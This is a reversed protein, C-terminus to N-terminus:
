PQPGTPRRGPQGFGNSVRQFSSAADADGLPSCPEALLALPDSIGFIFTTPTGGWPDFANQGLSYVEAGVAALAGLAAIENPAAGYFLRFAHSEGPLLQGFCLDFLAGHDFAGADIFGAGVPPGVFGLHSPGSLPSPFAFGDNSSWTLTPPVLTLADITVYEFFPTPSVDWDLVRRYRVDEHAFFGVNTVTVDIEYLFPTLPSPIFEHTVVLDTAQVSSSAAAGLPVFAIPTLGFSGGYAENAWGDVFGDYSVGWGECWCGVALAENGTLTDLLGVTVGLVPDVTNLHGEDNVGLQLFGNTIVADASATPIAILLAFTVTQALRALVPPL